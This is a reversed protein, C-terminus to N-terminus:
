CYTSLLFAAVYQRVKAAYCQRVSNVEQNSM